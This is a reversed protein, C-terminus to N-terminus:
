PTIRNHYRPFPIAERIHHLDCIWRVLRELWFGFWSTTVWWYKRIDLYWQYDALDYWQDIVKQKLTEYDALRESWWIVEGHWGPALLDACKVTWPHNPDEPMYFAKIDQPYNTVFIPVDYKNMLIEEDDAWLDEGDKIDSWMSQLEKVVDAHLKRTFPEDVTKQLVEVDRDLIKLDSTNLRIVESVIFKVLSEQIDMNQDNDCFATEADMMWLENLHRRTKSKEARFVPGFDYVNRHGAIAAEIYMQWTQSLYMTEGNTHTVEYLETSDEACTPTFVPSDIKIYDNNRMWDYTAHIITDRIRQISRQTQSRLYLHRQDFLFEVGHEKTGLPYDKAVSLIEIKSVQLEYEEKKPHKSLIWSLTMASEIWCEKYAEFQEDWVVEKVIVCQMYGTWDRLNAFAIKWSVRTHAIRWQLTVEQDIHDAGIHKILMHILLLLLILNISISTFGVRSEFFVNSKM